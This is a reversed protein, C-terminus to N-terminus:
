VKIGLLECARQFVNWFKHDGGHKDPHCVAAARARVTKLADTHGQLLEFSTFGTVGAQSILWNAADGRTKLFGGHENASPLAAWGRYQEARQTVGYRDVARLAQLALAIARVNDQWDHFRDCPFSLSGKESEFSLVVGPGRVKADARPLGDRRIEKADCDLQIVINKAQLMRLERQLDEMTTSWASDFRARQRRHKVTPTGPWQTLAVFKIEM